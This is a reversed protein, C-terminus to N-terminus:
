VNKFHYSLPNDKDGVGDIEFKDRNPVIKKSGAM